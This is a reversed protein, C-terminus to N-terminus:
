VYRLLDTGSICWCTVPVTLVCGVVRKGGRERGPQEDTRGGGGGGEERERGAQNDTQRGRKRWKLACILVYSM